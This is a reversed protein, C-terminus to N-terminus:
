HATKNSSLLLSCVCGTKACQEEKSGHFDLPLSQWQNRSPICFACNNRQSNSSLSHILTICWINSSSILPTLFRVLLQAARVAPCSYQPNQTPDQGSFQSDTLKPFAAHPFVFSLVFFHHARSQFKTSSTPHITCEPDFPFDGSACYLNLKNEFACWGVSLLYSTEDSPKQWSKGSTHIFFFHHFMNM